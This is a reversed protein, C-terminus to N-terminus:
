TKAIGGMMGSIGGMGYVGGIVAELEQDTLDHKHARVHDRVDEITFDYGHAKAIAVLAASDAGKEKLAGQLGADSKLDAVFREVEAKSMSTAEDAESVPCGYSYRRLWTLASPLPLPASIEALSAFRMNHRGATTLSSLRDAESIPVRLRDAGPCHLKEANIDAALM